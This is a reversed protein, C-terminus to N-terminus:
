NKSVKKWFPRTAEIAKVFDNYDMTTSPGISIHRNRGAQSDDGSILKVPLDADEIKWVATRQNVGGWEIPLCFPPLSEITAACSLGNKEGPRFAPGHVANNADSDIDKGLRIGLTTATAGLKPMGNEEVMARYIGEPSPTTV